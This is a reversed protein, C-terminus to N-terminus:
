YNPCFFCPMSVLYMYMISWHEDLILLSGVNRQPLSFSTQLYRLLGEKPRRQTSIAFTTNLPFPSPVHHLGHHNVSHRQDASFRSAIADRCDCRQFCLSKHNRRTTHPLCLPFCDYVAGKEANSNRLLAERAAFLRQVWNLIARRPHSSRPRSDNTEQRRDGRRQPTKKQGQESSKEQCAWDLNESFARAICTLWLLM